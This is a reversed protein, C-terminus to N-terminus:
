RHRLWWAAWAILYGVLMILLMGFAGAIVLEDPDGIREIPISVGGYGLMLLGAMGVTMGASGGWFWAWKHAERVAEDAGRWWVVTVAFVAVLSVVVLAIRLPAAAPGGFEDLLAALAGVVMGGLVSWGLVAGWSLPRRPRSRATPESM